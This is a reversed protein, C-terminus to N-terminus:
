DADASNFDLTVGLANVLETKITLELAHVADKAAEVKARDLKVVQELPRALARLRSSAASFDASIHVALAPAAQAVLTELGGGRRGRYLREAALLSALLLEHSTQSPGGAISGVDIRDLSALWLALALRAGIANELTEISRSVVQNLSSQGGNAFNRPFDGGLHRAARAAHAKVDEAYATVLRRTRGNAEPALRQWVSPAGAQDFLLYELAFLGKVDAGVAEVFKGDLEATGALAADVAERRVPWYLVRVLTDSRALPGVRFVSLRKWSL